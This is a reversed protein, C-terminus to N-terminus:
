HGHQPHYMVPDYTGSFNTCVEWLTVFTLYLAVTGAGASNFYYQYVRLDGNKRRLDHEADVTEEAVGQLSKSSEDPLLAEAPLSEEISESGEVPKMGLNRVYSSKGVLNAPTNVESVMGDELIMIADAAAM